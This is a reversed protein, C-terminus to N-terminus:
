IRTGKLTMSFVSGGNMYTGTQSLLRLTDGINFTCADPINAVISTTNISITGILSANQYVDLIFAEFPPTEISFKSGSFNIPLTFPRVANFAIPYFQNTTCAFIDYGDFGAGFEMDQAEIYMTGANVRDILFADTSRLSVAQPYQRFEPM